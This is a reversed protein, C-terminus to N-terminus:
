PTTELEGCIPCSEMLVHGTQFVTIAKNLPLISAFVKFDLYRRILWGFWGTIEWNGIMVAAWDPGIPVANWPASPQYVPTPQQELEAIITQAIFGGDYLATQAMGSYPTDAGDGAIYVNRQGEARLHPTVIARGNQAVKLDLIEQYLQHAKVGAAWIVTSTKM